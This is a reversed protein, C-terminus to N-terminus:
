EADLSDSVVAVGANVLETTKRVSYGMKRALSLRDVKSKQTASGM